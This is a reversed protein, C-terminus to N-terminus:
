PEYYKNFTRTALQALLRGQGFVDLQSRSNEYGFEEVVHDCFLYIKERFESESATWEGVDNVEAICLKSGTKTDVAVVAPLKGRLDQVEFVINIKPAKKKQEISTKITLCDILNKVSKELNM